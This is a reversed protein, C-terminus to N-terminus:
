LAVSPLDLYLHQGLGMLSSSCLFFVDFFSPGFFCGEADKMRYLVVVRGCAAVIKETVFVFLVLNERKAMCSSYKLMSRCCKMAEKQYAVISNLEASNGSNCSAEFEEVAFVLVPMVTRLPESVFVGNLSLHIRTLIHAYRQLRNRLTVFRQYPIERYNPVGIKMLKSFNYLRLWADYFYLDPM